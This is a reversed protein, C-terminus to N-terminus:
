AQRKYVDLHTYSVAYISFIALTSAQINFVIHPSTGSLAISLCQRKYVDLHTYSVSTHVSQRVGDFTVCAILCIGDAISKRQFRQIHNQVVDRSRGAFVLPDSM